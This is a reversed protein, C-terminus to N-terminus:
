AQEAQGDPREGTGGRALGQDILHLIEAHMSRHEHEAQDRLRAHVDDPLRLTLQKM